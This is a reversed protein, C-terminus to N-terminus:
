NTFIIRNCYECYEMDNVNEDWSMCDRCYYLKCIKCMNYGYQGYLEGCICKDCGM